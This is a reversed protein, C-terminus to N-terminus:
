GRVSAATITPHESAIDEATMAATLYDMFAEATEADLLKALRKRAARGM